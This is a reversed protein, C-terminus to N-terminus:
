CIQDTVGANQHPSFEFTPTHGAGGSPDPEADSLNSLIYSAPVNAHLALWIPSCTIDELWLPRMILVEEFSFLLM